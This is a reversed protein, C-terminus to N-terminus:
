SSQSPRSASLPGPRRERFFIGQPEAFVRIEALKESDCCSNLLQAALVSRPLRRRTKSRRVPGLTFPTPM